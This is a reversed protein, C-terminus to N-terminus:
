LQRLRDDGGGRGGRVALPVSSGLSARLPHDRGGRRVGRMAAGSVGRTRLNLLFLIHKLLAKRNFIPGHEVCM